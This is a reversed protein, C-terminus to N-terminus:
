YYHMHLLLLLPLLLLVRLPVVVLLDRERAARAREGWCLVARARESKREGASATQRTTSFFMFFCFSFSSFCYRLANSAFFFSGVHRNGTSAVWGWCLKFVETAVAAAELEAQAAGACVCVRVCMSRAGQTDISLTLSGWVCVCVCVTKVCVRAREREQRSPVPHQAARRCTASQASTCKDRQIQAKNATGKQGTKWVNVLALTLALVLTATM